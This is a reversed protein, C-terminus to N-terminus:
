KMMGLAQKGKAGARELYQDYVPKLNNKFKAMEEVTQIHIEMGQQRLAAPGSELTEKKFVDLLEDAMENLSQKIIQQQASSLKNWTKLNAIVHVPSISLPGIVGYKESEYFKRRITTAVTGVHGDVVGRQLATYVDSTPMMVPAGGLTKIVDGINGPYVRIRVGKYDAPTLLPKNKTFCQAYNAFGVSVIKVGVKHAEKDLFADLGGRCSEMVAELSSAVYPLGLVGFLSVKGEEGFLGNFAMDIAGEAVADFNETIKFLQSSPYIKIQIDGNTKEEIEKTKAELAKAAPDVIPLYSSFKFTTAGLVPSAAIVLGLIAVFSVVFMLNKRKM